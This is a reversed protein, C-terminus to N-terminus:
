ATRRHWLRAVAGLSLLVGGAIWAIRKGRDALDTGLYLAHFFIGAVLLYSLYHLWKWTRRRADVWVISSWLVVALLYLSAIGLAVWLSGLAVGFLEVPRYTSSFPVLIDAIDFGMFADLPLVAVHIIAAAGCSLGIARHARWATIPALLRYTNGTLQGIGMLTALGLLAVSILGSARSAYWPWSNALRSALHQWTTGDHSATAAIAFSLMAIGVATAALTRLLWGRDSTASQTGQAFAETVIDKTDIGRAILGHRVSAMYTTSGCIYYSTRSATANAATIIADLDPQGISTAKDRPIDDNRVFYDVHIHPNDGALRTLQTAYPMESSARASLYLSASIPLKDHAITALMSVFPTVGVGSALMVIHPHHSAALTFNGYSGTVTVSEGVAIDSLGSTFRGGIRIGLRLLGEDDSPSSVLSFCRAISPRGNTHTALAIYQGAAYVLRSDDAPRLTVSRITPTVWDLAEITYHYTKYM